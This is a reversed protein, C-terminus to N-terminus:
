GAAGAFRNTEPADGLAIEPFLPVRITEGPNDPDPRIAMRVTDMVHVLVNYKTDAELLIRAHTVKPNNKKLRQMIASLREYNYAGTDTREIVAIIRDSDGVVFANDHVVIELHLQDKEKQPQESTSPVNIELVAMRTFVATILLFPVLAVMLNMFATINLEAPEPRRRRRLRHRIM